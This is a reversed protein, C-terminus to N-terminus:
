PRRSEKDSYFSYLQRLLETLKSNFDGGIFSNLSTNNIKKLVVMLDIMEKLTNTGNLYEDFMEGIDLIDKLYEQTYRTTDITFRSDKLKKLDIQGSTCYHIAANIIDCIQQLLNRYKTQLKNNLYTIDVKTPLSLPKTEQKTNQDIEQALRKLLWNKM